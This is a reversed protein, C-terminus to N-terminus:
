RGAEEPSLRGALVAHVLRGEAVALRLAWEEAPTRTSAALVAVPVGEDRVVRILEAQAGSLVGARTAQGLLGGLGAGWPRPPVAAAVPVCTGTPVDPSHVFAYALGHRFASWTLMPALGPARPPIARLATLFGTLVEGDLDARIQSDGAALRDAIRRLERLAIGVAAVLWGDDGQRLSIERWVAARLGPPSSRRSLLLRLEGIGLPRDPLGPHVTRGELVCRGTALVEEFAIGALDLATPERDDVSENM